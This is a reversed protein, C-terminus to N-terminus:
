RIVDVPIKWKAQDIGGVGSVTVLVEEISPNRLDVRIQLGTGGSYPCDVNKISEGPRLIRNVSYCAGFGDLRLPNGAQDTVSFNEPSYNASVDSNSKNSLRWNLILQDARWERDTLTLEVDNSKWTQTVGLVSEAPTNVPPVPTPPSTPTIVVLRTVEVPPVTVVQTVIVERTAEIIRPTSTPLNQLSNITPQLQAVATAQGQQAINVIVQPGFIAGIVTGFATIIAVTILVWAAPNGSSGGSGSNAM